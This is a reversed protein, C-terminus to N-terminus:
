PCNEIPWDQFITASIIEGPACEPVQVAPGSDDWGITRSRDQPRKGTLVGNGILSASFTPSGCRMHPCGGRGWMFREKGIWERASVGRAIIRKRLVRSTRLRAPGPRARSRLMRKQHRILRQRRILRIRSASPVVRAPAAATRATPRLEAKRRRRSRASDRMRIGRIEPLQRWGRRKRRCPRLTINGARTGPQSRPTAASIAPRRLPRLRRAAM